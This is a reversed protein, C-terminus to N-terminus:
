STLRAMLLKFFRDPEVGVAVKANPHFSTDLEPQAAGVAMMPASPRVPAHAYGVTMGATFEGETEVEVYYDQFKLLQPDILSAVTLPDHMAIVTPDIGHHARHLTARM